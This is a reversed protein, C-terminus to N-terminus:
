KGNKEKENLEARFFRGTRLCYDILLYSFNVVFHPHLPKEDLYIYEQKDLLIHKLVGISKIVEGKKYKKENM